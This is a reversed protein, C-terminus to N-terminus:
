RTAWISALDPACARICRSWPRVTMTPLGGSAPGWAFAFESGDIRICRWRRPPQLDTEVHRWVNQGSADVLKIELNNTTGTGRLRFSIAYDEGLEYQLPCRAVVFGGGGKFDFDLKLASPMRASASSLALQANGSVVPSWASAELPVDFRRAPRTM